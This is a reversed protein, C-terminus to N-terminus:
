VVARLFGQLDDEAKDKDCGYRVQLIRIFEDHKGDIQDIDEETLKGWRVHIKERVRAWKAEIVDDSV